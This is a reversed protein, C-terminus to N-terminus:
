PVNHNLISSSPVELSRTVLPLGSLGLSYFAIVKYLSSSPSSLILIIYICILRTIAHTGGIIAVSCTAAFALVPDIM